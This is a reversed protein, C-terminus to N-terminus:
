QPVAQELRAPGKQELGETGVRQVQRTDLRTEELGSHIEHRRFRHHASTTRARGELQPQRPQHIQVLRHEVAAPGQQALVGLTRAIAKGHEIYLAVLRGVVGKNETTAVLNASDGGGGPAGGGIKDLFEDLGVYDAGAEKAAAEKDAPCLVLVTKTKGTGHPLRVTGRLAQDPKRPDVGLRIHVDVSADFKTTNVEKVLAAAQELSYSKGKEVKGDVAKRRKVIKM